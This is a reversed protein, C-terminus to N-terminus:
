NGSINLFDIIQNLLKKGCTLYWNIGPTILQELHYYILTFPIKSKNKITYFVQGADCRWKL